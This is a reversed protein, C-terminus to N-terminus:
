GQGGRALHAQGDELQGVLGDDGWQAAVDEQADVALRTAVRAVLPGAEPEEAEEKIEGLPESSATERAAPDRAASHHVRSSSSARPPGLVM